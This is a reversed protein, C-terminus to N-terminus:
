MKEKEKQIQMKSVVIVIQNHLMVLDFPETPWNRYCKVQANVGRWKGEKAVNTIIVTCQAQKRQERRSSECLGIYWLVVCYAVFYESVCHEVQGNRTRVNTFSMTNATITIELCIRHTFFFFVFYTIKSFRNDELSKANNAKWRDDVVILGRWACVSITEHSRRTMGQKRCFAM